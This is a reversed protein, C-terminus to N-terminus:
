AAAAAGEPLAPAAASGGSTSNLPMALQDATPDDTIAPLNLRARGENATIIPRGTMKMLSDAQEEFSGKMKDAINFELYVNTIDQAEPLLQRMLEDQIFECWPALCDQYLNKHQERINSFTAHELIGVMPLPVHYARAVEEATLKRSAIYESDRASASNTVYTMGDELVLHKGASAGTFRTELQERFGLRQDPTWKPATAPRLIVGEFRSGNRWFARRFGHSAADEELIQRLTELPSLGQLPDCPDYGTFYVVQNLALPVERGDPLTWIFGTPLLWGQVTMAEPPIRALGIRGEELHVKLWYARFYIGLDQMLAEMLRYRTTGLNPHELWNILPHNALRERDTDSNRRFAHIGLQAINRALFDVVTRVNPQTRYIAAYTAASAQDHWMGAHQRADFTALGSPQTLTQLTGFSRVIAM